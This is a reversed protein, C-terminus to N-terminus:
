LETEERKKLIYKEAISLDQGKSIKMVDAKEDLKETM